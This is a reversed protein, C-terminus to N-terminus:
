ENDEGEQIYASSIFGTSSNPLKVEYWRSDISVVEFLDGNKAKSIIASTIMPKQRINVTESGDSIKVTLLSVSSTSTTDSGSKHPVPTPTATPDPAVEESASLVESNSNYDSIKKEIASFASSITNSNPDTAESAIINRIGFAFLLFFVVVVVLLEPLRQLPHLNLDVAKWERAPTSTEQPVEPETEPINKETSEAEKQSIQSSSIKSQIRRLYYDSNSFTELSSRDYCRVGASNRKPRILGRAELRRLTVTSIGLESAAESISLPQTSQYAKLESLSFYRNKGDPRESHLVGSKDWRRITDISVGLIHAAESILVLKRQRPLSNNM